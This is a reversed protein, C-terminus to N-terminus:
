MNRTLGVFYPTPFTFHICIKGRLYLPQKRYVRLELYFLVFYYLFLFLPFSSLLSLYISYVVQCIMRFRLLWLLICHYDFHLFGVFLLWVWLVLFKLFICSILRSALLLSYYALCCEVILSGVKIHTRRSRKDVTMDDALQLQMM